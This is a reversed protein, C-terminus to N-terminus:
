AVGISPWVYPLDDPEEWGFQSYYEWNKRLLNSRHSAHVEEEGWWSPMDQADPECIARIKDLCTDRYGRSVWEQCIAIGYAALGNINNQWMKSAPHNRWGIRVETPTTLANLIQLTEVRQKGLRQRDLVKASLALTPYPVFTQM